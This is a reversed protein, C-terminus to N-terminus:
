LGGSHSERLERGDKEARGDHNARLDRKECVNSLDGSAPALDGDVGVVRIVVKADFVDTKWFAALDHTQGDACSVRPADM